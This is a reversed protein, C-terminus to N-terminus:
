KHIQGHYNCNCVFYNSASFITSYNKHKNKSLKEKHINECYLGFLWTEGRFTVNEIEYKCSIEPKRVSNIVMTVM